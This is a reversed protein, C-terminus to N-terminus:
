NEVISIARGIGDECSIQESIKKSNNYLEENNLLREISELFAKFTAKALPLPKVGIKKQYVLDGWFKQDGVPHLIPCILMPKGARLCEATTGIGGHHVIAKVHPFLADYPVSDVIYIREDHALKTTDDIGWGKVLIIRIDFQEAIALILQPLEIQSQFPMSGLTFVLPPDGEALFKEIKSDLKQPHRDFWFGTFYHHDPYDTPKALFTPSIGYIFPHSVSDYQLSLAHKERFKQIPKQFMKISLSTLAYSWRNLFNPIPFGSLAPNPFESTPQLAPVLIAGIMKHLMRDAFVHVLTKPHYLIRDSTLALQYFEDLSHEALPYIWKELNRQIVFPNAKLLQKGEESQILAQYDAQIPHFHIGYSQVLNAFPKTTSLTVDHGRQALARGLIAYPQVDGRSGLTLLAIKM